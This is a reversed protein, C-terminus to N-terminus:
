EGDHVWPNLNNNITITGGYPLPLRQSGPRPFLTFCIGAGLPNCLSVREAPPGGSPRESHQAPKAHGAVEGQPALTWLAASHPM